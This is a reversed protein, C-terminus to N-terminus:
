IQKKSLTLSSPQEPNLATKKKKKKKPDINQSSEHNM